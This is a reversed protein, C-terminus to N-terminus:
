DSPAESTVTWLHGDPDAFTGVYGWPQPGPETVITAGRGSARKILDDVAGDDGGLHGPPVRQQGEGGGPPRRDGM